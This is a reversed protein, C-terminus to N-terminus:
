PVSNAKEVIGLVCQLLLELQEWELKERHTHPHQYGAPLNLAQIGRNNFFNADSGGGTSALIPEIGLARLAASALRVPRSDAALTFAPYVDSVTVEARAGAAEAESIFCERMHEVQLRLKHPDRSRAEGEMEVRDAIINTANGGHITGINATTEADIRGLKMRALARAAVAISSIGAEPAMGAHAAVGHVVVQLHQQAPASIILPGAAGSSDLVFGCRSHLLSYDLVQAGMVGIEECVSFVLELPPHPMGSERLTRVLEILVAVGARDDAGLITSGDTTIENPTEVLSIGATPEVTDLHVSFLLPEAEYTGPVRAILNGVEGVLAAASSDVQVVIGQEELLGTVLRAINGEQRSPGDVLVLARFTDRLRAYNIQLDSMTAVEVLLMYWMVPPSDQM